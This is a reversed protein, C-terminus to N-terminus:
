GGQDTRRERSQRGGADQHRGHREGRNEQREEGGRERGRTEHRRHRNAQEGDAKGTRELDAAAAVAAVQALPFSRSRLGPKAVQDEPHRRHARVARRHELATAVLIAPLLVALALAPARAYALAG